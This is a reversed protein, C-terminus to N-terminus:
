AVAKRLNDKMPGEHDMVWDIYPTMEAIWDFWDRKWECYPYSLGLDYMLPSGSCEILLDDGAEVPGRRHLTLCGCSPCKVYPVHRWAVETDPWRKLATRLRHVLVVARKAGERTAVITEPDSWMDVADRVLLSTTEINATSPIPAAGLADMLSDAVLWSDPVIISREMSTDVREGIGQPNRSISRLHVIVDGVRTLADAVRVACARCLYGFEAPKPVCGRCTTPDACGAYHMPVMRGTSEDRTREVCPRPRDARNVKELDTSICYRQGSM